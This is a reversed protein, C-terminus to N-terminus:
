LRFGYHPICRQRNEKPHNQGDTARSGTRRETEAKGEVDTEFMRLWCSGFTEEDAQERQIHTRRM